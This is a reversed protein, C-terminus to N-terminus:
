NIDSTLTNQRRIHRKRPPKNDGLPLPSDMKPGFRAHPVSATQRRYPVLYRLMQAGGEWDPLEM